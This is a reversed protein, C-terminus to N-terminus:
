PSKPEHPTEATTGLEEVLRMWVDNPQDPRSRCSRCPLTVVQGGTREFRQCVPCQWLRQVDYRLRGYPGKM